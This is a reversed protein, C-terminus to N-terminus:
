SLQSLADGPPTPLALHEQEPRNDNREDRERGPADGGRQVRAQGDGRGHHEDGGERVRDRQGDGVLRRGVEVREGAHSNAGPASSASHISRITSGIRARIAIPQIPTM